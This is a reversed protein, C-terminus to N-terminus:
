RRHVRRVYGESKIEWVPKSDRNLEVVRGSTAVLTSGSALRCVGCAGAVKGEWLVKGTRDLELVRGSASNAAMFRDGPLDQIGVWTGERPLPIARVRTGATNMEVIEGETAFIVNGNRHKRIANSGNALAFSYLQKGDRGYETAKNYSSVFTHGNPLRQVGTPEGETKLQWVINGKLDRESVLQRTSEAILVRGNPLVQAEMPGSLNRLEWRISGDPRSEWVRGTNYEIGLTLGLLREGEQFCALDLQEGQVKWWALWADHCKKRAEPASDGVSLTPAKEGALQGLMEEVQWALDTPADPLMAILAPVATRDRVALLSEAARFRVKQNRDAFLKRVEARQEPTGKRGVLHAAAARLPAHPDRLATLVSSDLKGGDPCLRLLCALVEEEVSEDDICPVYALLVAVAEPPRRAALLRAAATPLLTLNANELDDLCERARRAVEADPDALASRLLVSAASGRLRVERSATERDTFNDSGLQRILKALHRQDDASLSRKRFFELLAPNDTGLSANQLTKEDAAITEDQAGSVVASLSLLLLAAIMAATRPIM